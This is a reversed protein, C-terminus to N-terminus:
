DLPPVLDYVGDAVAERAIENLMERRRADRQRRYEVLDSLKVRRHTGTKHFPIKGEELLQVLYQRSVGLMNAAGQTTMEQASPLVAVNEGRELIRVAEVIVQYVPDPIPIPDAGPEVLAARHSELARALAHLEREGTASASIESVVTSAAM